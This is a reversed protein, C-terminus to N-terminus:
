QRWYVRFITEFFSYAAKSIRPTESGVCVDICMQLIAPLQGSCLIISANFIFFRKNMGIFDDTLYPYKQVNEYTSLHSYTIQCM